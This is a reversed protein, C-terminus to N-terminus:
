GRWIQGIMDDYKRVNRITRGDLWDCHIEAEGGCINNMVKVFSGTAPMETSFVL